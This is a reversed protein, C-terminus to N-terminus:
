ASRAAAIDLYGLATGDGFVSEAHTATKNRLAGLAALTNAQGSWVSAIQAVLSADNPDVGEVAIVTMMMGWANQRAVSMSAYEGADICKLVQTATINARPVVNTSPANMAVTMQVDDSNAFTRGGPSNAQIYVKLQGVQATSNRDFAM